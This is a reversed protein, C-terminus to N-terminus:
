AYNFRVFTAFTTYPNVGLAFRSLKEIFSNILNILKEPKKGKSPLYDIPNFPEIIIDNVELSIGKKEFAQLLSKINDKINEIKQIWYTKHVYVKAIDGLNRFIEISEEWSQTEGARIGFKEFMFKSSPNESNMGGAITVEVKERMHKEIDKLRKGYFSSLFNYIQLINEAERLVEKMEKVFEKWSEPQWIKKSIAWENLSVM